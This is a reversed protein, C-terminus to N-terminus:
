FQHVLDRVHYQFLQPRDAYLYLFELTKSLAVHRRTIKSGCKFFAEKWRGVCWFGEVTYTDCLFMLDLWLELVFDDWKHEMHFFLWRDATRLVSYSTNQDWVGARLKVSLSATQRWFGDTKRIVFCALTADCGKRNQKSECNLSRLLFMKLCKVNM